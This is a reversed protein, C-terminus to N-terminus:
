VETQDLRVLVEGPDGGLVDVRVGEGEVGLSVLRGTGGVEGTEIVHGQGEVLDVVRGFHTVIGLEEHVGDRVVNKTDM